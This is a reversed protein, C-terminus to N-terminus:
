SFLKKVFHWTNKCFNKIGTGIKKVAKVFGNEEEEKTAYVVAKKTTVTIVNDKLNRNVVLVEDPKRPNVVVEVKKHADEVLKNSESATEARSLVAASAM